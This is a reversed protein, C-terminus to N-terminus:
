ASGARFCANGPERKKYTNPASGAVKEWGAAALGESIRAMLRKRRGTVTQQAASGAPVMAGIIVTVRMAERWKLRSDEQGALVCDIVEAALPDVDLRRRMKGLLRRGRGVIQAEGLDTNVQWQHVGAYVSGNATAGHREICFTLLPSLWTINEMRGHLKYGTMGEESSGGLEGWVGALRTEIDNSGKLEGAPLLSLYNRLEDLGPSTM